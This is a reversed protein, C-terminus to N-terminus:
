QDAGSTASTTPASTESRVNPLERLSLWFHIIAIAGLLPVVRATNRFAIEFKALRQRNSNFNFDNASTLRDVLAQHTSQYVADSIVQESFSGDGRLGQAYAHRWQSIAASNVREYKSPRVTRVLQFIAVGLLGLVVLLLLYYISVDFRGGFYAMLDRRSLAFVAGALVIDATLLIACRQYLHDVEGLEHLYEQYCFDLFETDKM